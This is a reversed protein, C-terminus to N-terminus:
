SYTLFNQTISMVRIKTLACSIIAHFPLPIRLYKKSFQEFSSRKILINIMFFVICETHLTNNHLSYLFVVTCALIDIFYFKWCLLNYNQLLLKCQFCKESWITHQINKYSQVRVPSATFHFGILDIKVLFALFCM